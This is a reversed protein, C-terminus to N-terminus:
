LCTSCFFRTLLDVLNIEKVRVSVEGLVDLILARILAPAEKDPTISSYWLDVVFDQLIKDIFNEIAAEISPSDIKRRRRSIPPMTSLRYDNVSLQRRALHSLYTQRRM